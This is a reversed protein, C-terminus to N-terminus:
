VFAVGVFIKQSVGKDIKSIQQPVVVKLKRSARNSNPMSKFNKFFRKFCPDGVEPGHVSM